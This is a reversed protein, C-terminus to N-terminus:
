SARPSRPARSSGARSARSPSRRASPSSAGGSRRPSRASRANRVSRVSSRQVAGAGGVPRRRRRASRGHVAGFLGQGRPRPHAGRRRGGARPDDGHGRAVAPRRPGGRPAYQHRAPARVPRHDNRPAGAAVEDPAPRAGARVARVRRAARSRPPSRRAALVRLLRRAARLHGARLGGRDHPERVTRDRGGARRAASARHPEGVECRRARRAPARQRRSLVRCGGHLRGGALRRRAARGSGIAFPQAWGM